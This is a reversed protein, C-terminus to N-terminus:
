LNDELEQATAAEFTVLDDIMELKGFFCKDELSYEINRNFINRLM